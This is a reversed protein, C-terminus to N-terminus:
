STKGYKASRSTPSPASLGAKNEALVRFEYDTEEQLNDVTYSTSTVKESANVLDWRYAGATRKEIKYTIIPAGGDHFSAPWSIEACDKTISIINPQKINM